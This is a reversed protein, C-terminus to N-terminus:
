LTLQGFHSTDAYIRQPLPHFWEPLIQLCHSQPLIRPHQRGINHFEKCLLKANINLVSIIGLDKSKFRLVPSIESPM